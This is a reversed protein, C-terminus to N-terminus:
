NPLGSQISIMEMWLLGDLISRYAEGAFRSRFRSAVLVQIRAGSELNTGRRFFPRHDQNGATAGSIGLM